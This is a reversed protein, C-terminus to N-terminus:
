VLDCIRDSYALSIDPSLAWNPPTLCFHATMSPLFHYSKRHQCYKKSCYLPIKRILRHLRVAKLDEEESPVWHLQKPVRKKKKVRRLSEAIILLCHLLSIAWPPPHRQPCRKQSSLEGIGHFNGGTNRECCRRVSVSYYSCLMTKRYWRNTKPSLNKM